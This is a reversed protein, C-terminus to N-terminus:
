DAKKSGYNKGFYRIMLPNNKKHAMYLDKGSAGYAQEMPKSPKAPKPKPQRTPPVYQMQPPAETVVTPQPAAPAGSSLPRKGNGGAYVMGDITAMNDLLPNGGTRSRQGMEGGINPMSDLLQNFLKEQQKPKDSPRLINKIAVPDMGQNYLNEALKQQELSAYGLRKARVDPNEGSQGFDSVALGGITAPIGLLGRMIQGGVGRANAMIGPPKPQFKVGVRASPNPKAMFPNNKPSPKIKLPGDSPPTGAPGTQGPLRPGQKTTATNNLVQLQKNIQEPSMGSNLLMIRALNNLFPNM